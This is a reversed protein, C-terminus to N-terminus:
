EEEFLSSYTTPVIKKLPKGFHQTFFLLEAEKLKFTSNCKSCVGSFKQKEIPINDVYDQSASLTIHKGCNGLTCKMRTKFRQIRAEVKQNM